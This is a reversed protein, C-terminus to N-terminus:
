TTHYERMDEVLPNDVMMSEIFTKYNRTWRGIPLETIEIIDEEPRASASGKIIFNKGEKIIEGTFGRYFPLM